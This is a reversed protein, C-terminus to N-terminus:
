SYPLDWYRQTTKVQHLDAGNLGAAAVRVLLEDRGRSRTTSARGIRSAVVRSAVRRREQHGQGAHRDGM